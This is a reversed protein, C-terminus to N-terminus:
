IIEVPLKGLAKTKGLLVDALIQQVNHRYGLSAIRAFAPYDPTFELDFPNRLAVHVVTQSEEIVRALLAAQGKRLHANVTFIIAPTGGVIAGDWGGLPKGSQSFRRVRFTPLVERLAQLVTSIAGTRDDVGPGLVGLDPVYVIPNISKAVSLPIVAEGGGLRVISKGALEDIIGKDVDDAAKMEAARAITRQVRNGAAEFIGSSLEGSEVAAKITERAKCQATFTHCILALDHGAKITRLAAEAPECQARAGGMELDDTVVAGEFGIEGRLLEAVLKSSFTAANEGDIAPYIVHSTMMLGANAEKAARFPVLERSLLTERSADVTPLAIHADVTAAGKGPFHKATAMVGGAQFGRIAAAIYKAVHEPEDGYSRIGIGPNEPANIDCVPALNVNLGLKRLESGALKTAAETTKEDGAAALAMASPLESVERGFRLVPGGEHDIAFLLPGGNAEELRALQKKFHSLSGLHRSFFIVGGAGWKELERLFDDDAEKGPVGVMLLQGVARELSGM